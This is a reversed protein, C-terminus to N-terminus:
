KNKDSKICFTSYLPVSKINNVFGFNKTSIRIMYTPNFKSAYVNLSRSRTNDSSKVEIPIVNGNLRVIFDIEAQNGSTWYFCHNKNVIMQNNVYNETLGGKFDNLGINDFLIDDPLIDQSACCLGVDNMYFKFDNLSKYANLPLKIQELRYLQNAVGALSLWECAIAFESARGGSKIGSYKFKRNEKALQTSINKYVLRTKPIQPESNYKGMDDFYSDLITQQKIKVLEFNKNKFYEEVVEPMGGVLLYIKYLELAQEHFPRDLPTNEVYCKKIENVLFENKSAYLFEEFDMAYMDLFSVKGVPFSFNKRHTSVGLLSGMAIVHYQNAEESFYKLSTLAEPCAQVEDFIILTHEPLIEKRKYASLKKLINIPNLDIFFDKLATDKEFNCYIVNVYEKAGFLVVIYTKGVQRAGQLVLPKRDESKKWEVLNQYIKRKM